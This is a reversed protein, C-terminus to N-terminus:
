EAVEPEFTITISGDLLMTNSADIDIAEWEEQTGKFIIQALAACDYFARYGISTVSKSITISILDNCKYFADQGIETVGEPIVITELGYCKYFAEQRIATVSSPIITNKCGKILTNTATEIIANCNDRSDYKQNGEDIVISDAVMGSFSNGQYGQFGSGIVLNQIKSNYLAYDDIYTVSNHIILNILGTCERFLGFSLKTVGNPISVSTLGTHGAFANSGFEVINSPVVTSKCGQILTNTATEIIANCNNRSDYVENNQDVVISDLSSCNDFIGGYGIRTVSAPIVISTLASCSAFADSGISKVSNPIHVSTLKKCNNFAQKDISTVSQPISVSSLSTCYNFTDNEIITVGYPISISALKSCGDFAAEGISTVTSPITINSLKDCGYFMRYGIITMGEKLTVDTLLTCATFMRYGMNTVSSGVTATTLSTCGEFVTNGVSIVSDPILVNTLKDCGSFANTGIAVVGYPITVNELNHNYAFADSAIETIWEPIVFSTLEENNLKVFKTGEVSFDTTWKAYLCLINSQSLSGSCVHNDFKQTCEEDLYWGDFAYGAKEPVGLSVSQNDDLYEKNKNEPSNVGGNLHYCIQVFLKDDNKNVDELALLDKWESDGAYRWQIHTETVQFEVERGDVGNAGDVGEAKVGTDTEGIWWNGNTGIYPTQGDAGTDGKEGKAGTQGTAGTDGKLASLEVLDKWTDNNNDTKYRWQIHTASKQFEVERGDVGAVGQIGQAGTAGTDGKYGEGLLDKIEDITILNNWESDGEVQWQFYNDQFRVNIDDDKDCGTLGFPMALACLGMATGALFKKFRGKKM